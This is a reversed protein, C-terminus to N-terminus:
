ISLQLGILQIILPCYLHSCNMYSTPTYVTKHSISLGFLRRGSQYFHFYFDKGKVIVIGTMPIWERWGDPHIIPKSHAPLADFHAHVLSAIRSQLPPIQGHEEM